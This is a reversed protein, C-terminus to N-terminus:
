PYTFTGSGRLGSCGHEGRLRRWDLHWREEALLLRVDRCEAASWVGDGGWREQWTLRGAWSRRDGETVAFAPDRTEYGKTGREQSLLASFAAQPDNGGAARESAAVAFLRRAEAVYFPDTNPRNCLGVVGLLLATVVLCLAVLARQSRRVELSEDAHTM